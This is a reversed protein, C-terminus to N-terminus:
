LGHLKNRRNLSCKDTDKFTKYKIARKNKTIKKISNLHNSFSAIKFRPYAFKAKVILADNRSCLWSYNFLDIESEIDNCESIRKPKLVTATKM